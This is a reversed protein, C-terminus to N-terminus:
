PADLNTITGLDLTSGSLVDAPVPIENGFVQAGRFQGLFPPPPPSGAGEISFTPTEESPYLDRVTEEVGLTFQFNGNTQTTATRVHQGVGLTVIYGGLGANNSDVLRGTVVPTDSIEITGCSTTEGAVVAAPVSVTYAGVKLTWPGVPFVDIFDKGRELAIGFYGLRGTQQPMLSGLTVTVGQLPDGNEKKVVKGTILTDYASYLYEGLEMPDLNLIDPVMIVGMDTNQQNLVSVPIYVEETEFKQNNYTIVYKNSYNAGAHSVDITIFNPVEGTLPDAILQLQFRGDAGTTAKETTDGLTVIVGAVPPNGSNTSVIKGTVVNEASPTPTSTSSSGGGGGCGALMLTALAGALLIAILNRNM